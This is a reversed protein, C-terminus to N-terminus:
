QSKCKERVVLYGNAPELYANLRRNRSIKM